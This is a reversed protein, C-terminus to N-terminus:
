EVSVVQIEFDLVKGALPHNLDLTVEQDTLNVITAQFPQGGIEGSLVQGVEIDEPDPFASRPLVEIAGPDHPGYGKEPSVQFTKKDGPKLGLTAEEFGELVDGEGHLYVLPEEGVSSDVVEGEVTLTYHLSVKSGNQIM